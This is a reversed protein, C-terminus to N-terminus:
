RIWSWGALWEWPDSIRVWLTEGSDGVGVGDKSSLRVLSKKTQLTDRHFQFCMKRGFSFTFPLNETM